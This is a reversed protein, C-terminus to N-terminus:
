GALAYFQQAPCLKGIPRLQGKRIVHVIEIGDAITVRVVARERLDISYPKTM